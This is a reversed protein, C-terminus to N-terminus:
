YSKVFVGGIEKCLGCLAFFAAGTKGRLLAEVCKLLFM